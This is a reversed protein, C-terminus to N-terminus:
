ADDSFAANIKVYAVYEFIIKSKYELIIEDFNHYSAYSKRLRTQPNWYQYLVELEINIFNTAPLTMLM